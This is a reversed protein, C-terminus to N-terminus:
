HKNLQSDHLISLVEENAGETCEISVHASLPGEPDPLPSKKAKFYKLLAM